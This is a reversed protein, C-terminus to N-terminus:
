EQRLAAAPDLRLGRRAAIGCTALGAVAVLAVVTGIVVPNDRGQVEFLLTAVSSGIALAGGIGAVAGLAVPTM